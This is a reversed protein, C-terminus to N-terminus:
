VKLCSILSNRKKWVQLAIEGLHALAYVQAFLSLLKLFTLGGAIKFPLMFIMLVIAMGGSLVGFGLVKSKFLMLHRLLFFPLAVVSFWSYCLSVLNLPNRDYVNQPNHHLALNGIFYAVFLGSLIGIVTIIHSAKHAKYDWKSALSIPRSPRDSCNM